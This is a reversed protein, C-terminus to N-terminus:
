HWGKFFCIKVRQKINWDVLLLDSLKQFRKKYEFGTEKRAESKTVKRMIGSFNMELIQVPGCFIAIIVHTGM